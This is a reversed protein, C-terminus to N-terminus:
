VDKACRFGLNPQWTNPDAVGRTACRLWEPGEEYSGGRIVKRSGDAPGVPNRVGAHISVPLAMGPAAITRTIDYGGPKYWDSCWEWVNGAMDMVGYPSRGDPFAGVASVGTSVLRSNANKSMFANGWPWYRADTGRAAKEWEAETPLRKGHYRAYEHADLWSLDVAPYHDRSGSQCPIWNGRVKYGSVDVFRRFAENTVPTIDIRYAHLWVEHAPGEWEWERRNVLLHTRLYRKEDETTGMVFAGEPILAMGGAEDNAAVEIAKLLRHLGEPYKGGWLDVVIRDCLFNPMRVDSDLRVPLIVKRGQSGEKALSIQFEHEVWKRGSSSQSLAFVVYDAKRIGDRIVESLSDGCDFDREDILVTHRNAELDSRLRSVADRDAHAYSIFLTSM